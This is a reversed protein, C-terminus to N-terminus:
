FQMKHFPSKIVKSSHIRHMNATAFVRFNQHIGDGLTLEKGKSYEYLNLVPEEEFLSNLREVVEPPASNINDLLVWNGMRVADVFESEVFVFSIDKKKNELVTALSALM